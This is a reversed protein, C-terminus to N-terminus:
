LNKNCNYDLFRNIILKEVRFKIEYKNMGILFWKNLWIVKDVFFLCSKFIFSGNYVDVCCCRVFVM